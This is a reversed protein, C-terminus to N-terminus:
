NGNEGLEGVGCEESAGSGMHTGRALGAALSDREGAIRPPPAPPYFGSSIGDETAPIPCSPIPYLLLLPPPPPPPPSGIVAGRGRPADGSAWWWWWLRERLIWRVELDGHQAAEDGDEDETSGDAEVEGEGGLGGVGLRERSGLGDLVDVADEALDAGVGAGVGVVVVPVEAGGRSEVGGREAGGLGGGRVGGGHPFVREPGLDGVPVLLPTPPECPIRPERGSSVSSAPYQALSGSSRRRMSEWGSTSHIQHISLSASKVSM